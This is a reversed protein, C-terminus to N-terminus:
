AGANEQSPSVPSAGRSLHEITHILEAYGSQIAKSLDESYDFSKGGISVQFAEPCKGFLTQVYRLLLSPTVHHSFVAACGHTDARVM